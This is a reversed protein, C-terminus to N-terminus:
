RRGIRGRWRALAVRLRWFPSVTRYTQPQPMVLHEGFGGRKESIALGSSGYHIELTLAEQNSRFLEILFRQIDEWDFEHWVNDKRAGKRYISPDVDDFFIVAGARLWPYWAEIEKAVHARVHLSDVLLIDIGDRLFPASQLIADADTSDSQVFTWNADDAVNSCDMIDISCLRGGRERCVELFVATSVGNKVGLELITPNEKARAREYILRYQRASEAGAGSSSSQRMLDQFTPTAASIDNM